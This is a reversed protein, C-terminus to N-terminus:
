LYIKVLVQLATPAHYASNRWIAVRLRQQHTPLATAGIRNMHKTGWKSAGGAASGQPQCAGYASRQSIPLHMWQDHNAIDNPM